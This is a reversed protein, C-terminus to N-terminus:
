KQSNSESFLQMNKAIAEAFIFDCLDDIEISKWRPMPFGITRDHYFSNYKILANVKSIYLSGDFFYLTEIDQRRSINRFDDKNYPIIFRSSNLRVLYDPHVEKVESVGVVSDVDLYSDKLITLARDIDEAETFPSTPELLVLIDFEEGLGILRAIVDNIVDLTKSNDAALEIPRYFPVDAGFSKATVAIEEDETSVIVRDIFNSNKAAEIPYSILPRGNLSLLNKRPLGKSGGRAPILALVKYKGLM